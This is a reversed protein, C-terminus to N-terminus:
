SANTISANLMELVLIFSKAKGGNLRIPALRDFTLSFSADPDHNDGPPVTLKPEWHQDLKEM